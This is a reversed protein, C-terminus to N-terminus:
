LELERAQPRPGSAVRAQQLLAYRREEEPKRGNGEEFHFEEWLDKALGFRNYGKFGMCNRMNIRRARRREASGYIADALVDGLVGGIVGGIGYQSVYYGPYPENNDAYFSLGSALADCESIDDFAEAFSTDPRQFYFYKDYDGVDSDTEEFSLNPMPISSADPVSTMWEPAAAEDNVASEQAAAPMAISALLMGFVFRM